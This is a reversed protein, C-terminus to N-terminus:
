EMLGDAWGPKGGALLFAKMSRQLSTKEPLDASPERYGPFVWSVAGMSEPDVSLVRFRRRFALIRSSPPLLDELAPSLLWSDCFFPAQKWEPFFEAAFARFRSLSNDVAEPALSADSPIHISIRRGEPHPLLEFELSGLRFLEMAMQRPFWWGANFGYRGYAKMDDLLYRTAFRMTDRFIEEPIGAKMWEPWRTRVIRLEEWLLRLHAPDGGIRTELEKVADTWESRTLLRRVLNEDAFPAAERDLRSYLASVEEPIELMRYLDEGSLPSSFIKWAEAHLARRFASLASSERAPDARGPLLVTWFGSEPEALMDGCTFGAQGHTRDPVAASLYCDPTGRPEPAEGASARALVHERVGFAASASSFCGERVGQRLKEELWAGSFMRRVGQQM